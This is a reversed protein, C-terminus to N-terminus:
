LGLNILAEKVKEYAETARQGTRELYSKGDVLLCTTKAATNVDKIGDVIEQTVTAPDQIYRKLLTALAEDSHIGCQLKVPVKDAVTKLSPAQTCAGVGLAIACLVSLTKM